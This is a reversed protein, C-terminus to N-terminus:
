NPSIFITREKSSNANRIFVKRKDFYHLCFTEFFPRVWLM